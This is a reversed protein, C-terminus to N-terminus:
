LLREAHRRARLDETFAQLRERAEDSTPLRRQGQTRVPYEHVLGAARLQNLVSLSKTRLMVCEPEQRLVVTQSGSQSLSVGEETLTLCFEGFADRDKFQIAWGSAM